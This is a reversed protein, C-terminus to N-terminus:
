GPSLFGFHKLGELIGGACHAQALYIDASAERQHWERLEDRANGVIIGKANAAEFMSLDNGSDGCVVTREPPMDLRQQLFAVAAGKNGRKPLIDLDQGSSYVLQVDLGKQALTDRLRPLLDAAVNEELFFSAKHPTQESDPQPVLDAFHATTAVIAERDWGESLVESWKIDPEDSGSPYILTGVSLVTFDPEIMEQEQRLQRYLTPSRGTSYVILSGYQDRHQSLQQNLEALAAKDGVLTNDLDTIFMFKSM